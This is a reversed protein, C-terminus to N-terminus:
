QQLLFMLLPTLICFIFEFYKLDKVLDLAQKEIINYRLSADRITRSFFAIPQENKKDKKQMLVTSLTHESAFYFIIFDSTYDPSILIPTTSLAFKVALFSKKADLSWKVENDKKLMDTMEKLHEVLNPIFRRM